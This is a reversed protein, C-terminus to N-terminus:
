ERSKTYGYIGLVATFIVSSYTSFREVAGFIERPLNISGVAGFFMCAFAVIALIGLLRKNDKFSGAAILILSVIALLVVLVTIVYVHIFSQKSGDYGGSTLPFLAYGAASIGNMLSFLYVGIRFIKHEDRVMVCLFASCVCSFIKYVTTFGSAVVFSPADAATLDSVAQKMWEYGPYYQAGIVDHLFYFLVSLIGCFLTWKGLSKIVKNEMRKDGRTMYEASNM